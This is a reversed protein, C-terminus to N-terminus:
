LQDTMKVDQIKVDRMKRAGQGSDPSYSKFTRTASRLADQSELKQRTTTLCLQWFVPIHKQGGAGVGM